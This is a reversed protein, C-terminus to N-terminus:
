EESEALETITKLLPLVHPEISSESVDVSRIRALSEGNSTPAKVIDGVSVPISCFYNYEKGSFEGTFKNKYQIDVIKKEEMQSEKRIHPSEKAFRPNHELLYRIVMSRLWDQVTNFDDERIAIQLRDYEDKELRCSIKSPLTRRDAKRPKQPAEEKFGFHARVAAEAEKCLEIGYNDPREVKSHLQADYKPFKTQIVPVVEKVMIQPDRQARMETLWM